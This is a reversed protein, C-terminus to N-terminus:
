KRCPRCTLIPYCLRTITFATAGIAMGAGANVAIVSGRTPKENRQKSDCSSTCSHQSITGYIYMFLGTVFILLPVLALACEVGRLCRSDRRELPIDVVHHTPLSNLIPAKLAEM